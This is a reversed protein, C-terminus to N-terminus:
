LRQLGRATVQWTVTNPQPRTDGNLPNIIVSRNGAEAHFVEILYGEDLKATDVYDGLQSSGKISQHYVVSGRTNSINVTAYTTTFHQNPVVTNATFTLVGRGIDMEMTAFRIDDDGLLQWNFRDGYLADVDQMNDETEADEEEQGDPTLSYAELGDKVVRWRNYKKVMVAANTTDNNANSRFPEDHFVDILMNEQLAITESCASNNNAGAYSRNYIVVDNQNKVTINAYVASTYYAHPWGSRTAITMTHQQNDIVIQSFENNGQGKLHLTISKGTLATPESNDIPLVDAYDKILTSRVPEEVHSLMLWLDIKSAANDQALLLPQNRIQQAHYRFSSLLDEAPNNNLIFNYLGESDLRM